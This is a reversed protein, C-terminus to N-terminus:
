NRRIEELNKLAKLVEDEDKFPYKTGKMEQYNEAGKGCLLVIDNANAIKLAYEIAKKRNEISVVNETNLIGTKIEAIIEDPNESRPNDSTLIIIDSKLTALRGMIPRKTRDRDGGCGFVTILKGKCIQRATDMVKELGDPTHAYDIIVTYGFKTVIQNFRGEVSTLSAVGEIIVNVPIGYLRAVACACLTNYVNFQGILNTKIEALEDFLNIFFTTGSVSMNIDIAFVNSPETIGYSACMVDTNHAILRGNEDDANILALHCMKSSFLKAKTDTYHEITKFYDLHDQTINTLVAIDCKVGAMKNLDLAHATIEMVVVNVGSEYMENFIKHLEIPDPTTMNTPLKKTDIYIASTGILGVKLGAEMFIERLLYTTTTKGNTGTIGILKMKSIPNHYFNSAVIGMALRADDIIIQPCITDIERETIFAVAGNSIAEKYYLHGDTKIGRFCFFLGSNNIEKSNCSLSKIELDEPNLIKKVNLNNILECLKM